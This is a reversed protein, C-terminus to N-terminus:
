TSRAYTRAKSARRRRWVVALPVTAAVGILAITAPEPVAAISYNINGSFTRPTFQTGAFAVNGTRSVDSFLTLDSNSWTTQPPLAATGTYRLGGGTTVGQLYFSMTSGIPLLFPSPLPIPATFTTTGASTTTVTGLLTWGANSATFGAYAGSRQYIEINASTGAASALPVAFSDFNLDFVSATLSLFVGGSGNNPAATTLTQAQLVGQGTILLVATLITYRPRCWSSM